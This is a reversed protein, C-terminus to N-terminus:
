KEESYIKISKYIKIFANNDTLTMSDDSNNLLCINIENYSSSIFTFKENDGYYGVNAEGHNTEIKDEKLRTGCVGLVMEQMKLFANVNKNLENYIKLNFYVNEDDTNISNDDSCFELNYNYDSPLDFELTYEKKNKNQFKFKINTTKSDEKYFKINAKELDNIKIMKNNLADKINIENNDQDMVVVYDSKISPFYYEYNDDKYFLELAEATSLGEEITKDVIRYNNNKFNRNIFITGIIVLTLILICALFKKMM